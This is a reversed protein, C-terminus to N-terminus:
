LLNLEKGDDVLADYSGCAECSSVKFIEDPVSEECVDEPLIILLGMMDRVLFMRRAAASSPEADAWM